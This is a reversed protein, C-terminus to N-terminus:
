DHKSVKFGLGEYTRELRESIQSLLTYGFEKRLPYHKRCDDFYATKAQESSKSVLGSKFQDSLNKIDFVAQVSQEFSDHAALSQKTPLLLEHCPLDLRFHECFAEVVMLTGKLKGQESYGAIHPTAISVADILAEPPAPEQEYVDLAVKLNDQHIKQLLAVDDVVGGRSTNILFANPNILSLAQEDILHYTPHEGTKTLPVHLSICDSALVDELKHAAEEVFPDYAKTEIDLQTLRKKLRSGVQGLGIIGVTKEQWTKLPMISLMATLVYDVVAEANCGPAHHFAVGRELLLAQDVHDTGITCSGVFKLTANGEVLAQNVKTVSRVFLADKEICDDLEITRGPKYDISVRDGLLVDLAPINEDALVRIM